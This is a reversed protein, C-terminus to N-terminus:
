KDILKKLEDHYIKTSKYDDSKGYKRYLIQLQKNFEQKLKLEKEMENIKDKLIDVKASTGIERTIDDNNLTRILDKHEEIILDKNSETKLKKRINKEEQLINRLQKKNKVCVEIKMERLEIQEKYSLSLNKVETVTEQDIDNNEPLNIIEDLYDLEEYWYKQPVKFTKHILDAAWNRMKHIDKEYEFIAQECQFIENQVKEEFTLKDNTKKSFLKKFFKM